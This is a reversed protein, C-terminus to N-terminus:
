KANDKGTSEGNNPNHVGTILLDLSGGRLLRFAEPEFEPKTISMFYPPPDPETPFFLGFEHYRTLFTSIKM